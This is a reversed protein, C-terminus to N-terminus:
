CYRVLDELENSSPPDEPDYPLYASCLVLRREAGEEDYKIRVAVLERCSFGPLM